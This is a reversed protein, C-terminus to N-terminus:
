TREINQQRYVFIMKLSPFFFMLKFSLGEASIRTYYTIEHRPRFFRPPRVPKAVQKSDIVDNFAHLSGSAFDIVGTVPQAVIGVVGRGMGKFLGEVGDEKAGELPQTFVGTLGSVFGRVLNKGSEAFGKKKNMRERREKQFKDDVSLAAVGSGLRNGIRGLAGATGGLVGSALSRVGTALGEAFEEPGHIIGMAPEYFFDGIGKKIGLALKMPNGIIDLGLIIKYFQMFAQIKYHSVLQNILESDSMFVLKREFYDLKLLTDNIEGITLGTVRIIFDLGFPFKGDPLEGMALSIHIKIPGILLHDYYTKRMTFRQMELVIDNKFMNDLDRQILSSNDENKSGYDFVNMLSNVWGWDVQVMFEQILVQLYKFRTLSAHNSIIACIEIFSKQELEFKDSVTKPVVVPSFAVNFVHDPLQNDVQIRDLKVHVQKTHESSSFHVWFARNSNRRIYELKPKLVVMKQFDIEYEGSCILKSKTNKDNQQDTKLHHQYLKELTSNEKISVPKFIKSDEQRSEWLFSSNITLYLLDKRKENDVINLGFGKLTLEFSFNPKILEDM